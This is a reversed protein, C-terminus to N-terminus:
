AHAFRQYQHVSEIFRATVRTSTADRGRDLGELAENRVWRSKVSHKSWVVVVCRADLIAKDINGEFDDGPKIERDWWVSLGLSELLEILPAVRKRDERSYSVFIDAM